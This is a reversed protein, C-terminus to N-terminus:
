FKVYGTRPNGDSIAVRPPLPPQRPSPPSCGGERDRDCLPPVSYGGWGGEAEENAGATSLEQQELLREGGRPPAP